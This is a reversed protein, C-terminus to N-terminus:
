QSPDIIKRFVEKEVDVHCKRPGDSTCQLVEWDSYVLTYKNGFGNTNYSGDDSIDSIFPLMLTYGVINQRLAEQDINISQAQPKFACFYVGAEQVAGKTADFNLTLYSITGNQNAVSSSRKEDEKFAVHVVRASNDTCFCSIPRGSELRTTVEDRSRYVHYGKFWNREQKRNDNYQRDLFELGAIKHLLRM